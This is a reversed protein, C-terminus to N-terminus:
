IRTVHDPYDRLFQENMNAYRQMITQLSEPNDMSQDPNEVLPFVALEYIFRPRSIAFGQYIAAQCRLAIQLTGTLFEAQHNGFQVTVRKLHPARERNVDLASSLINNDQFWRYLERPFSDAYFIKAQRVEAFRDSFKQQIYRRLAGEHPDRVGAANYGMFSMLLGAVHQSGFHSVAVYIGKGRQLAADFQPRNPFRIRRIIKDKPLLDFILYYFRDCRTRMFYRRCAGPWPRSSYEPGWFHSMHQHYRRRRKFNILWECTGFLQGFYYLGSLSFLRAILFLLGRVLAFKFRVGASLPPVTSSEAPTNM